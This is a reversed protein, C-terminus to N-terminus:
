WGATTAALALFEAFLVLRSRFPALYLRLRLLGFGFRFGLGFGLCFLGPVRLALQIM